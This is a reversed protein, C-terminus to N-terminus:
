KELRVATGPSLRDAGQELLQRWGELRLVSDEPGAFFQVLM